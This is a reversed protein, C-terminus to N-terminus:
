KLKLINAKNTLLREYEKNIDMEMRIDKNFGNENLINCFTKFTHYSRGMSSENTCLINKSLDIYSILKAMLLKYLGMNRYYSNTECAIIHTLPMEQNNFLMYNNNYEVDNLITKTGKNNLCVGLLFNNNINEMSSRYRIIGFDIYRLGIPNYDFFRDYNINAFEQVDHDYYNDLLFEYLEKYNLNLWEINNIDLNEIYEYEWKKILNQRIVKDKKSM